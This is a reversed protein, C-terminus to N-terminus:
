LNFNIRGCNPCQGFYGDIDGEPDLRKEFQVTQYCGCCVKTTFGTDENTNSSGGCGGGSVDDLEDDSLEEQAPHLQTFCAEVDEPRLDMGAEEALALLEEPTKAARAKEIQEPSLKMM